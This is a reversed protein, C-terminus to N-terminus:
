RLSDRTLTQSVAIYGDNTTSVALEALLPLASTVLSAPTAPGVMPASGTEFRLQVRRSASSGLGIQILDTGGPGIMVPAAGNLSTGCFQSQSATRHAITMQTSPACGSDMPGVGLDEVVISYNVSSLTNPNTVWVYAVGFNPQNVQPLVFTFSDAVPVASAPSALLSAAFALAAVPVLHKWSRM